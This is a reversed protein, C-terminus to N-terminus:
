VLAVCSCGGCHVQGDTKIVIWTTYPIASQRTEPTCSAKVFMYPSGLVPSIHVKDIHNARYLRYGNESKFERLRRADWACSSMFYVLIDCTQIEPTNRLDGNWNQITSFEPLISGDPLTRRTLDMVKYDDHDVVELKLEDAIECLRILHLKNYLSCSINREQLYQRLEPVHMVNFNMKRLQFGRAFLQKRKTELSAALARGLTM